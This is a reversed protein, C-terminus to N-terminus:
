SCQVPPASIHRTMANNSQSCSSRAVRPSSTTERHEIDIMFQRLLANFSTPSEVPPFHGLGVMEQMSAGVILNAIRRGASVPANPDENGAVVLTPCMIASIDGELDLGAIMDWMSAHFHADQSLLCTTARDLVDPRRERFGASFWRANSLPALKGMGQTRAVNARERLAERVPDAFTCLTAVLTLSLVQEPHRLAFHQAIMGGVSIGVLHAAGVGAHALVANLADTLMDFSPAGNAKGSLGHGPMDFAIVDFDRAFEEIQEGWWTLNLGVGHLFVLPPNGRPGTRVYNIRPSLGAEAFPMPSKENTPSIAACEIQRM